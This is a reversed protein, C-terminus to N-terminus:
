KGSPAAEAVPPAARLAHWWIWLGALSTFLSVVDGPSLEWPFLNRLSQGLAEGTFQIGLGGSLLLLQGETRRTALLMMWLGLDLVAAGLDLDRVWRTMWQGVVAHPDYHIFFSIGAFLLSGLTLLIALRPRSGPGSSAQYILSIVVAFILIQRIGEDYWYYRAWTHGSLIGKNGIHFASVEIVTTLFLVISYALVFPYRRYPGRILASIILLEL